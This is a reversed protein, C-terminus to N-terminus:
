CIVWIKSGRRSIRHAITDVGRDGDGRGRARARARAGERRRRDAAFKEWGCNRATTRGVARERADDCRGFTRSAIGCRARADDFRRVKVPAPAAEAETEGEARVVVTARKACRKTARAPASALTVTNLTRAFMPTRAPILGRAARGRAISRGRRERAFSADLNVARSRFEARTEVARPSGRDISRARPRRSSSV